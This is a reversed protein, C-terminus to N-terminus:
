QQQVAAECTSRRLDPWLQDEEEAMPPEALAKAEGAHDHCCYDWATQLRGMIKRGKFTTTDIPSELNDLIDVKPGTTATSSTWLKAFDSPSECQPGNEGTIVWTAIAEDVGVEQVLIHM